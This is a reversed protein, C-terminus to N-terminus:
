DQERKKDRPAVKWIQCTCGGPLPHVGRDSESGGADRPAVKWIQCTRRSRLLRVEAGTDYLTQTSPM